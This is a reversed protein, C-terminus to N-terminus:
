AQLRDTLTDIRHLMNSVLEVPAWGLYFPWELLSMRLECGDIVRQIASLSIQAGIQAELREKYAATVRGTLAENGTVFARQFLFSLDEPGRGIGVEQWDAWVLRGEHDRLLNGIHCDGHCLTASFDRMRADIEPLSVFKAWFPELSHARPLDAFKDQNLLDQWAQRARQIQAERIEREPQRLWSFQALEDVKGWYLAHLDALETAVQLYDAERWAEPPDVPRHAALLLCLGFAGQEYSTLMHPVRLPVRDALTHYFRVERRARAYITPESGALTVKLVAAGTALRVRYTHSGSIGGQLVDYGALTSCHGMRALCDAILSLHEDGTQHV